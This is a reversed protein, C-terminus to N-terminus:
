FAIGTHFAITLNTDGRFFIPLDLEIFYTVSGLNFGKIVVPIIGANAGVTCVPVGAVSGCGETLSVAARLGVIIPGANYLIGPDIVIGGGAKNDAIPLSMVFEFDIFISETKKLTIGGALKLSLDHGFYHTGGDVSVIPFVVGFHGGLGMGKDQAAASGTAAAVATAVALGLLARREM